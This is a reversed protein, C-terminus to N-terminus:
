LTLFFNAFTNLKNPQRHSRTYSRQSKKIKNELMTQLRHHWIHRAKRSGFAAKEEEEEVEMWVMKGHLAIHTYFSFLHFFFFLLRIHLLYTNCRLNKERERKKQKNFFVRRPKKLSSKLPGHVIMYMKKSRIYECLTVLFKQEISKQIDFTWNVMQFINKSKKRSNTYSKWFSIAKQLFNIVTSVVFILANNMLFLSFSLQLCIKLSLWGISFFCFCFIIYHVCSQKAKSQKAKRIKEHMRVLVLWSEEREKKKPCWIYRFLLVVFSSMCSLQFYCFAVSGILVLWQVYTSPFCRDSM